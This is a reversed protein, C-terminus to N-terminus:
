KYWGNNINQQHLIQFAKDIEEKNYGARLLPEKLAEMDKLAAGSLDNADQLIQSSSNRGGYTRSSEQHIGTEITITSTIQRLDKQEDITLPRGYTLELSKKVAAFSPIHDPTLGDKRSRVVQDGYTGVELPVVNKSKYEQEAVGRAAERLDETGVPAKSLLEKEGEPTTLLRDVEKAEALATNMAAIDAETPVATRGPETLFSQELATNDPDHKALERRANYYEAIQLEQQDTLPKGNQDRAEAFVEKEDKEAAENFQQIASASAAGNLATISSNKGGSAAGAAAAISNSLVNALAKQATSDSTLSSAVSQAWQRTAISAFDGAATSAAVAGPNGGTLAAVLANGAAELGIRGYANSGDKTAFGPVGSSELRDSIQGGVEGVLQSGIQQGQLQNSLKQADFQNVLAKDAASVDTTYSGSRSGAHVAISGSIASM